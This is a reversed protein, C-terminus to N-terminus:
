TKECYLRRGHRAARSGPRRSHVCRLQDYHPGDAHEAAAALAGSPPQASTGDSTVVEEAGIEATSGDPAAHRARVRRDDHRLAVDENRQPPAPMRTSEHHAAGATRPEENTDVPRSKSGATTHTTPTATSCPSAALASPTGSAAAKGRRTAMKEYWGAASRKQPSPPARVPGRGVGLRKPEVATGLVLAGVRVASARVGTM